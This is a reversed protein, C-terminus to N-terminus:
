EPKGWHKDAFDMYRQWDFETIDHKGTRNHYGISDGVAENPAPPENVGLGAKGFLAYVPEALKGSLFEGKPDAWLDETASTIYVPRPAVLAVLEHQDFTLAAENKSYKKFNGNFWHPFSTNLVEVTEGFIRKSLAAGGAGSNNSVVLGFREDQAGAWLSAKGLRSHGFVILKDKDVRDLTLLYDAIRSLGWSWAGIAAWENDAPKTQDKKYFLPQVGNLFGDDYDPDFDGYYATAVGYGRDIAAEVPWRSITTGRTSETAKNNVIAKDKAARFWKDSLIVSPDPTTAHNGFFSLGILVPAPNRRKQPLYLLLDTYNDDDKETFYIRVERMLAKGNLANSNESKVVYRLHPLKEKPTKGYMEEEFVALLEPRRKNIWDEKTKVKGGGFNTLVDPIALNGVLAEDYNPPTRKPKTDQAFTSSM